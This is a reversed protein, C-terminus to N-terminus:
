AMIGSYTKQKTNSTTLTPSPRYPESPCPSSGKRRGLDANPPCFTLEHFSTTLVLHVETREASRIRGKRVLSRLVFSLVRCRISGVGPHRCVPNRGSPQQFSQRALLFDILSHTGDCM